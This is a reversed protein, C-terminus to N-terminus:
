FHFPVSFFELFFVAQSYFIQVVLVLFQLM